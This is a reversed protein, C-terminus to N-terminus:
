ITCCVDEDRVLFMNIEYLFCRLRRCSVDEDRVLFM